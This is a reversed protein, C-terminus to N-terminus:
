SKIKLERVLDELILKIDKRSVGPLQRKGASLLKAGTSLILATLHGILGLLLIAVVWAAFYTINLQLIPEIAQQAEASSPLFLKLTQQVVQNLHSHKEFETTLSIIIAHDHFLGWVTTLLKITVLLGIALLTIGFGTLTLEQLRMGLFLSSYENRTWESSSVDSISDKEARTM